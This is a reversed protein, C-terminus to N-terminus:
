FIFAMSFFPFFAGWSPSDRNAHVNFTALADVFLEDNKLVKPLGYAVGLEFSIHISTEAVPTVLGFSLVPAMVTKEINLRIDIERTIDYVGYYLGIGAYLGGWHTATIRVLGNFRNGSYPPGLMPYPIDLLTGGTVSIGIGGHLRVGVGLGYGTLNSYLGSFRLRRGQIVQASVSQPRITILMPLLLILLRLLWRRNM